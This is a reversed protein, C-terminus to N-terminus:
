AALAESKDVRECLLYHVDWWPESNRYGVIIVGSDLLRALKPLQGLEQLGNDQTRRVRALWVLDDDALPMEALLDQEAAAVWRKGEPGSLPTPAAALTAKTSLTRVLRFYDRLSGSSAKALRELLPREIVQEIAAYRRRLSELMLDVGGAKHILDSDASPTKFVNVHVLTCVPAGIFTGLRPSLYPLYPPISYVVLMDDFRLHDAYVEFTKQVADYRADAGIGSVRLRELSDLILVVKAQPSAKAVHEVLETVFGRVEAVFSGLAGQVAKLIKERLVPQEKLSIKLGAKAPDSGFSASLETVSVDTGKLYDSLRAFWGRALPQGGYRREYGNSLAAAMTLLLLELSIPEALNLYDNMDAVVVFHGAKRLEYAVRRLETSKGVGRHGTFFWTGAKRARKMQLLLEDAPNIGDVRHLGAVYLKLDEPKDIDLPREDELAAYLDDYNASM